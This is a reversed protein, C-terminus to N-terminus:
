FLEIESSESCALVYSSLLFQWNKMDFLNQLFMANCFSTIDKDFYHNFCPVICFCYMCHVELTTWNICVMFYMENMFGYFYIDYFLFGVQKTM